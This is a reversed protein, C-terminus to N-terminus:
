TVKVLSKTYCNIGSAYTKKIFRLPRLPRLPFLCLFLIFPTITTAKTYPAFKLLFGYTLYM